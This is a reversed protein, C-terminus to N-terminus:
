PTARVYNSWGSLGADNIAKVRYVHRTGATVDTDTFTTTASGTDEVYVLLTNEGLGPRRRLIQYGTVSGGESAEWSLMIHGDGNVTATLNQPAAPSSDSITFSVELTGLEDGGLSGEPYATARLTYSGAPLGEGNLDTGDDGYLSYPSLNETQTVTKAGSLQLRVSGIEAGAAVDVRIGYSGSAPGPLSVTGGDTLTAVVAQDSTDMLTFGTLPNTSQGAAVASTAASSLSESNGADDTFSVRVKITKGADASALTYSTGTASQIDADSTGDNAVWQYSYSVNDLGDEDAIGSTGASLTEGVQATGSITPAGSAASNSGQEAVKHDVPGVPQSTLSEQHGADDTFNVQVKISKELDSASLTYSSATAGGINSDTNGDSAVWQYSYSVNDLGDEDAIGSTDATLTEGVLATGSITPEGTAPSNQPIAFTYLRETATDTVWLTEGDSSFGALSTIDAHLEIDRSAARKGTLLDFALLKDDNEPFYNAQDSSIYDVGVWLWRGDSYLGVPEDYTTNEMAESVTLEDNSCGKLPHNVSADSNFYPAAPIYCGDLGSPQFRYQPSIVGGPLREDLNIAWVLGKGMGGADLVWMTNGDSWIGAPPITVKSLLKRPFLSAYRGPLSAGDSLRHALVGSISRDGIFLIEGDSWLDSPSFTALERNRWMWAVDIDSYIEDMTLSADTDLTLTGDAAIDFADVPAGCPNTIWAKDNVTDVWVGGVYHCMAPSQEVHVGATGGQSYRLQLELDTSQTMADLRSPPAMTSDHYSEWPGIVGQGFTGREGIIGRAGVIRLRAPPVPITASRNDADSHTIFEFAGHEIDWYTIEYSTAPHGSTAPDWQITTATEGDAAIGINTPAEPPYLPAYYTDEGPGAHEFPGTGGANKAAVGFRCRATRPMESFTHSRSTPSVTVAGSPPQLNDGFVPAGGTCTWSIRYGRLPAEPDLNAPEAWTVKIKGINPGSTAAVGQPAHPPDPLVPLVPLVPMTVRRESHRWAPQEVNAAFLRVVYDGGKLGSIVRGTGQSHTGGKPSVPDIMRTWTNTGAVKYEIYSNFEDFANNGRSQSWEVVLDRGVARVRPTVPSPQKSVAFNTYAETYNGDSDRAGNSPFPSPGDYTFEIHDGSRTQVYDPMVLRLMDRSGGVYEVRRPTFRYSRARTYENAYIEYRKRQLDILRQSLPESFQVWVYRGMTEWASWPVPAGETPDPMPVSQVTRNDSLAITEDTTIWMTDGDSWISTANMPDTFGSLDIDVKSRQRGDRVGFASIRSDTGDAAEHLIWVTDGDSWLDVSRRDTTHNGDGDLDVPVVASLTRGPLDVRAFFPEDASFQTLMLSGDCWVGAGHVGVGKTQLTTSFYLDLLDIDKGGDRPLTTTAGTYSFGSHALLDSWHQNTSGDPEVVFTNRWVTTGDFCVGRSTDASQANDRTLTSDSATVRRGDSLRYAYLTDDATDHVWVMDSDTNGIMGYPDRNGADLTFDRNSDEPNQASAPLTGGWGITLALAAAAIVAITAVIAGHVGM